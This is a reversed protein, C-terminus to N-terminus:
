AVCVQNECHAQEFCSLGCLRLTGEKKQIFLIPSSYPSTSAEVHGRAILDAIQSKAEALERPSLRYPHKLPPKSGPELPITHGINREPPLGEPLSSMFRDDYEHLLADLKPEPMLQSKDVTNTATADDHMAACSADTVGGTETLVALFATCGCSLDRAARVATLPAASAVLDPQVPALDPDNDPGPM